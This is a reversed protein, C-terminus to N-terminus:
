KKPHFENFAKQLQTRSVHTYRDTSSISSHGLMDQIVRLDAGNDLLHTAFSHRLTHPSINKTIGALKAYKKIMRWIVIRDMPKGSKSVFLNKMLQSDTQGRVHILYHDIAQLAKKGIPVLREKSGKGFVRVFTDDIDYIGITAVESVRLGSSYLLEIIARDRSGLPKEPDPQSILREVESCSLVEPILQWLKPTELYLAVNDTILGERKLFRFLVKITVLGRSISSTAYKQDNLFALFNVIDGKTVAEFSGIDVSHLYRIFALSDSQYAHITNQSLGKESAIYSLFDDIQADM